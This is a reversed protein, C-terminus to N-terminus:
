KMVDGAYAYMSRLRMTYEVVHKAPQRPTRAACVSLLRKCSTVVYVDSMNKTTKM